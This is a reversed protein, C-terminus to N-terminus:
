CSLAVAAAVEYLGAETRSLVWGNRMVLDGGMVDRDHHRIVADILERDTAKELVGTSTGWGNCLDDLVTSPDRTPGLAAGLVAAQKPSSVLRALREALNTPKPAILAASAALEPSLLTLALGGTGARLIDRRSSSRIV